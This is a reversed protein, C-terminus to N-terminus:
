EEPSDDDSDDDDDDDDDFEEDESEEASGEEALSEDGRVIGEEKEVEGIIEDNSTEPQKETMYNM